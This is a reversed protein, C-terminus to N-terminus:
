SLPVIDHGHLKAYQEEEYGVFFLVSALIGLITHTGELQVVDDGCPPPLLGFKCLVLAGISLAAWAAFFALFGKSIGLLIPEKHM